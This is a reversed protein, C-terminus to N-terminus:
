VGSTRRSWVAAAPRRTSSRCTHTIVLVPGFPSSLRSEGRRFLEPCDVDCHGARQVLEAMLPGNVHEVVRKAEAPCEHLWREVAGSARLAGARSEIHKMTRERQNIIEEPSTRCMWDLAFRLDPELETRNLTPDEAELAQLAHRQAPGNALV